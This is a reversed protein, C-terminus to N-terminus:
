ANIHAHQSAGSSYNYNKRKLMKKYIEQRTSSLSSFVTLRDQKVRVKGTDVQKLDSKDIKVDVIEGAASPLPSTKNKANGVPKESKSESVQKKTESQNPIEEFYSLSSYYSDKPKSKKCSAFLCVPIIVALFLSIINKM